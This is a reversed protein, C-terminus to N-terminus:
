CPPLFRSTGAAALITRFEALDHLLPKEIVGPPVLSYCLRGVEPWTVGHYLRRVARINGQEDFRVTEIACDVSSAGEVAHIVSRQELYQELVADLELGGVPWYQPDILLLLDGPELADSLALLDKRPFVSARDGGHRRVMSPYQRSVGDPPIVRPPEAEVVALCSTVMDLLTGCGVPLSLLTARSGADELYKPRSDLIIPVIAM